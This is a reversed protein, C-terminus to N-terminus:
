ALGDLVDALEDPQTFFPSHGTDLEIVRAGRAKATRVQWEGDVTADRMTALVIDGKGFPAAATAVQAQRRLQAYAWDSQARTCDPYMKAACIDADPWYSRGLEDRLTGSFEPRFCERAPSEVPLVGALYVRLRAPVLAVTQAGFSHGVVVADPQPGVVAAHDHLELGVEDCPLDVAVAEHGRDELEEVLYRFCWSGHWAGHVLVFRAM